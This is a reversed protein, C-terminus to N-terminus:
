GMYGLRRAEGRAWAISEQTIESAKAALVAYLPIEEGIEALDWVADHSLESISAATHDECITDIVYDALSIQEATFGSIDAPKLTFFERKPVGLYSTERIALKGDRELRTLTPLIQRPVPGFQRKIYVAETIPEGWNVFATADTFWLIKNLKTAGLRTPDQCRWCIYHVLAEFKDIKTM